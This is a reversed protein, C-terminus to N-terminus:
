RSQRCNRDIYSAVRRGAATVEASGRQATVQPDRAAAAPNGGAAVLANLEVNLAEVTRQVDPRIDDPAASLLTAGSMRAAEVTATLREAPLPTTGLTNLPRIADTNAQVAACFPGAQAPAARTTAPAAGRSDADAVSGGCGALLAGLAVALLARRGRSSLGL